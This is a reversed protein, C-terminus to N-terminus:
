DSSCSTESEGELLEQGINFPDLSNRRTTSGLLADTPTVLSELIAGRYKIGLSDVMGGGAAPVEDPLDPVSVSKQLVDNEFNM